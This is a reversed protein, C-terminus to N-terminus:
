ARESPGPAAVNLGGAGAGARIALVLGFALLEVGAAVAFLRAGGLWDFGAGAGLYGVLGGLGFTVAVFLAQGSARHAPPVRRSFADVAAVYFLGFTLGHLLTLAVITGAHVALAMGVWRLASALFAVSLLTRPRVRRSLRPYLVM